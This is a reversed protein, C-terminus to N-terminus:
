FRPDRVREDPADAPESGFLAGFRRVDELQEFRRVVMM